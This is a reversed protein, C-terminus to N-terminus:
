VNVGAAESEPGGLTGLDTLIYNAIAIPRQAPLTVAAMLFAVVVLLLYVRIGLPVRM